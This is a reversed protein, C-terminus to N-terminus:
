SSILCRSKPRFIWKAQAVAKNRNRPFSYKGITDSLYFIKFIYNMVKAVEAQLNAPLIEDPANWCIATTPELTKLIDSMPQPHRIIPLNPLKVKWCRAVNRLSKYGFAGVNWQCNCFLLLKQISKGLKMNTSVALADYSRLLSIKAMRSNTQSCGYTKNFM